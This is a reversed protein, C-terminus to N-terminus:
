NGLVRSKNALHEEYTKAYYVKGEKDTLFYFYNSPTPHLVAEIASRSPNNVPGPPLGDHDYTNYPSVIALDRANPRDNREPMVYNLTADSQLRMGVKIRRLFIDAVMKRDEGTRVEGEVVSALTIIEHWSMGSARQADENPEIIREAFTELQKRVLGAPLEDEWVRYTDPFLYGELSQGEPIGDLFPFDSVLSRDFPKENRSMGVLAHYAGADIGSSQLAQGNEEITKGEVLRVPLETREQGFYLTRAIKQLSVGQRFEYIGAKPSKTTRDFAGYLRYVWEFRVLGVSKLEARVEKATTNKPITIRVPTGAQETSLWAKQVFLGGCLVFALVIIAIITNRIHHM